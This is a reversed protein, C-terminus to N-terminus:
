QSSSQRVIILSNAITRLYHDCPSNRVKGEYWLTASGGGDFNMAEDCGLRVLWSALEELTMGVSLDRQRGDVVVLFLSSGNWGIASRPHRELRSTYEYDESRPPPIKLQRGHRVLMPAGSIATRVGALDPATATSIALTQGVAIRPLRPALVPGISLVMIGPALPTDGKDRIERVRAKYTRGIRLPLWLGTGQAGLVLERGGATHTSHGMAPTYLVLGNTAREENLGCPSSTGGPWTVRFHSVVNTAHCQGQADVWFNVEGGPATLLEGNIIQLGRPEGAYAKFREYFDANIAAVPTGLTPPIRKLQAPLTSLGLVGGGAHMSDVHYVSNSLQVRVVHISWPVEPVDINTYALPSSPPGIRLVPKKGCSVVLAAMLAVLNFSVVHRAARRRRSPTVRDRRRSTPRVGQRDSPLMMAFM